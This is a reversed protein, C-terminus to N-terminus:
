FWHDSAVKFHECTMTMHEENEDMQEDILWPGGYFYSKNRALVVEISNITSWLGLECM